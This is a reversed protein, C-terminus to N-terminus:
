QMDAFDGLVGTAVLQMAHAAESRSLRGDRDKDAMDFAVPLVRRGEEGLDGLGAALEAASVGPDGDREMLRMWREDVELDLSLGRAFEDVSVDADDNFDVVAMVDRAVSERPVSVGMTRQLAGRMEDVDLLGDGNADLSRALPKVLEALPTGAARAGSTSAMFGALGAGMGMLASRRSVSANPVVRATDASKASAEIRTCARGTASRLVTQQM